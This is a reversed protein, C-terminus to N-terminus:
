HLTLLNTGLAIATLTSLIGTLFFTWNLITSDAGCLELSYNTNKIPSLPTIGSYTIIDGALHALMIFGMLLSIFTINHTTLPITYTYTLLTLITGTLITTGIASFISHTVPGRHTVKPIKQDIDPLGAFFWITIFGIIAYATHNYHALTYAIPSYLLATIGVHGKKYM